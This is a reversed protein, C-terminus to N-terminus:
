RSRAWSSCRRAVDAWRGHGAEGHLRQRGKRHRLRVAALPVGASHGPHRRRGPRAYDIAKKYADFGLFQTDKTVFVKDKTGSARTSSTSAARCGTPSRTPWPSWSSRARSPPCPTPRPARGVVAAASWRSTSSIVRAPMCDRCASPWAFHRRGPRRVGKTRRAADPRRTRHENRDKRPVTFLRTQSLGAPTLRYIRDDNSESFNDSDAAASALAFGITGTTGHSVITRGSGDSIIVAVRIM